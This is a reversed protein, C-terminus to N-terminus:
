STSVQATGICLEMSQVEVIEPDACLVNEIQHERQAPMAIFVTVRLRGHRSGQEDGERFHPPVSRRGRQPLFPSMKHKTLSTSLSRPSESVRLNRKEYPALDVAIPQLSM